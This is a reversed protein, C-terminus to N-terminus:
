EGEVYDHWTKIDAETLDEDMWPDDIDEEEEEEFDAAEEFEELEEPTPEIRKPM